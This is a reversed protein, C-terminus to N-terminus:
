CVVGGVVLPCPLRRVSLLDDEITVAIPAVELNIDHVRIPTAQRRPESVMDSNVPVRAPQWVALLDHEPPVDVNVGHVRIATASRCLEGRFQCGTEGLHGNPRRIPLVDGEHAKAFPVTGNEPHVGVSALLDIERWLIRRRIRGGTPAAPGWRPRGVTLLDKEHGEPWSGKAM